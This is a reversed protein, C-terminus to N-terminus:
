RGWTMRSVFCMYKLTEMYICTCYVECLYLQFIKNGLMLNSIIVTTLMVIVAKQSRFGHLKIFPFLRNPSYATEHWPQNGCVVHCPMTDWHVTIEYLGTLYQHVCSNRIITKLITKHFYFETLETPLIDTYQKLSIWQILRVGTCCMFFLMRTVRTLNLHRYNFIPCTWLV